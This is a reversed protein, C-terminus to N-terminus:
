QWSNNSADSYISTHTVSTGDASFDIIKNSDTSSTINLKTNNCRADRFVDFKIPNTVSDTHIKICQLMSTGSVSIEDESWDLMGDTTFSDVIISVSTTNGGNYSFNLSLNTGVIDKLYNFQIHRSDKVRDTDLQSVQTLFDVSGSSTIYISKSNSTDSKMRVVLSGPQSTNGTLKDFIVENSGGLDIANFEMIDPLSYSVDYSADRLAYSSGQFLIYKNPSISNDFYVGYQSNNTSALTKSQAVRIAGIIEQSKGQLDVKQKQFYLDAVVISLLIGFITISVLVEIVTFGDKKKFYNM